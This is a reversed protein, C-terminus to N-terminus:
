LYDDDNFVEAQFIEFRCGTEKYATPALGAKMSLHSLMTQLDWGQESAVQPLFVARRSQHTLIVGDQGIEIQHYDDIPQLPTLLSVEIILHDIEKPKLAPFRSDSFAAEQAMAVVSQIVSERGLLNGICGRLRGDDDRLTVFCGRQQTYVEGELSQMHAILPQEDETLISEIALRALALLATQQTIKM